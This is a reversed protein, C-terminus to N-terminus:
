ATRWVRTGGEVKRCSFQMGHKMKYYACRTSMQTSDVGPAFFSDGVAMESFPYIGRSGRNYRALPVGQEIKVKFATAM